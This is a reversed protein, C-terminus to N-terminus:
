YLWNRVLYRARMERAASTKHTVGLLFRVSIRMSQILNTYVNLQYCVEDESNDERFNLVLYSNDEDLVVPILARPKTLNIVLILNNRSDKETDLSFLYNHKEDHTRAKKAHFNAENKNLIYHHNIKNQEIHLGQGPQRRKLKNYGLQDKASIYRLEFYLRNGGQEKHGIAAAWTPKHATSM